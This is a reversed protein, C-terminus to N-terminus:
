DNLRETNPKENPLLKRKLEKIAPKPETKIVKGPKETKLFKKKAM